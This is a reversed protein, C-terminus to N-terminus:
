GADVPVPVTTFGWPIGLATAPDAVLSDGTRALIGVGQSRLHRETRDLDVVLWDISHYRDHAGVAGTDPVAVRLVADAVRVCTVEAGLLGDRGVHVVSGGLVELALGLARQPRDTLVTHHACCVIGLPDDESVEPLEWGPDSRPDLPFPFEPVFEHRLGADDPDTFFLPMPSGAATPPDDGEAVADLQDVVTLGRDRLSRYLHDIGSVYWGMGQLRPRDVAAYRQEGAVVYRRPDISDMLVDAIPTFTSYDGAGRGLSSLPTSHRGFVRAFFAEAEALDPVLLSPHYLRVVRHAGDGPDSM